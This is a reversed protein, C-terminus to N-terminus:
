AGTANDAAAGRAPAPEPDTQPLPDVKRDPPIINAERAARSASDDLNINAPMSQTVCLAALVTAALIAITGPALNTLTVKYTGGHTVDLDSQGAAGVLFLAFGLFGFALAIFMGCSVLLVRSVYTQIGLASQLVDLQTPSIAERRQGIAMAQAVVDNTSDAFRLLYWGAMCFALAALVLAALFGINLINRSFRQEV